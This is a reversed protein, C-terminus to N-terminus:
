YEYSESSSVVGYASSCTEVKDHDRETFIRTQHRLIYKCVFKNSHHLFAVLTLAALRLFDTYTALQTEVPCWRWQYHM